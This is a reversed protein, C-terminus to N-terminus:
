TIVWNRRLILIKCIGQWKERAPITFDIYHPVGDIERYEIARRVREKEEM